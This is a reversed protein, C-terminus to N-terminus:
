VRTRKKNTVQQLNDVATDWDILENQYLQMIEVANGQRDMFSQAQLFM